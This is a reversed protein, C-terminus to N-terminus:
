RPRRDIGRPTANNREVSRLTSPRPGVWQERSDEVTVWTRWPAWPYRRGVPYAHWRETLMKADLAALVQAQRARGRMDVRVVGPRVEAIRGTRLGALATAVSDVTVREFDDPHAM